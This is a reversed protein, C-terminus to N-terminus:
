SEGGHAEVLARVLDVPVQGYVTDNPSESTEAYASWGCEDDFKHEDGDHKCDWPEPKESPMGVEVHTYPGPYDSPIGNFWNPRPLCYTGEGAIVSVKFGDKCTIWNQGFRSHAGPTLRRNGSTIITELISM